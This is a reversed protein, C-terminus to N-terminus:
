KNEQADYWVQKLMPRNHRYFGTNDGMAIKNMYWAEFTLKPKDQKRAIYDSLTIDPKYSGAGVM